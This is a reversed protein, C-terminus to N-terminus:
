TPSNANIYSQLHEYVEYYTYEGNDNYIRIIYGSDISNDETPNSVILTKLPLGIRWDKFGEVLQNIVKIDDDMIFLEWIGPRGGDKINQNYNIQTNM